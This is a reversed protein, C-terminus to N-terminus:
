GRDAEPKSSPTATGADTPIPNPTPTSTATPIGYAADGAVSLVTGILRADVQRPVEHRPLERRTTGGAPAVLLTAELGAPWCPPM